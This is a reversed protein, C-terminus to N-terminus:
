QGAAKDGSDVERRSRRLSAVATVLGALATVLGTIAIIWATTDASTVIVTIHTGNPGAKTVATTTSLGIVLGAIVLCIGGLLLVRPLWKM